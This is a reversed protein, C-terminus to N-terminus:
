WGEEANLIIFGNETKSKTFLERWVREISYEAAGIKQAMAASAMPGSKRLEAAM